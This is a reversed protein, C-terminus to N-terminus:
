SLIARCIHIAEELTEVRFGIAEKLMKHEHPNGSKEMACVVPIRLLDAWAIEMVTGLSITQAGLLNVLVIDCRTTDFRDRTIVGKDTSLVSLHSYGEGTPNINDLHALYSKARLPSLGKINSKALEEIAFERWGISAGYSQHSIPGALYVTPNM